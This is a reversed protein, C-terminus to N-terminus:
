QKMLCFCVIRPLNRVPIFCQSGSSCGLDRQQSEGNTRTPMAPNPKEMCSSYLCSCSAQIGMELTCLSDHRSKRVALGWPMRHMRSSWVDRLWTLLEARMPAREFPPYPSTNEVVVACASLTKAKLKVTGKCGVSHTAVDPFRKQLGCVVSEELLTMVVMPVARPVGLGLQRQWLESHLVISARDGVLHAPLPQSCSSFYGIRPVLQPHGSPGAQLFKYLRSAQLLLMKAPGLGM